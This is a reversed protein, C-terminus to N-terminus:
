TQERRFKAIRVEALDRAPIKTGRGSLNKEYGARLKGGTDNDAKLSLALTLSPRHNKRPSSSKRAIKSFSL